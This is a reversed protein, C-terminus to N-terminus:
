IEHMNKYRKRTSIQHIEGGKSQGRERRDRRRKIKRKDEKEREREREREIKDHERKQRKTRRRENNSWREEALGGILCAPM